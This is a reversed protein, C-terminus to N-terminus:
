RGEPKIRVHQFLGFQPTGHSVFKHGANDLLSPLGQLLLLLYISITVFSSDCAHDRPALSILVKPFGRDSLLISVNLIAPPKPPAPPTCNTAPYRAAPTKRFMLADSYEGRVARYPIYKSLISGPKM